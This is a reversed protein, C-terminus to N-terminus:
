KFLKTFLSKKSKGLKEKLLNRIEKNTANEFARKLEKTTWSFKSELLFSVVNIHGWRVEQYL